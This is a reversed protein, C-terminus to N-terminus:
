QFRGDVFEFGRQVLATRLKALAARLASTAADITVKEGLCASMASALQEWKEGQRIDAYCEVFATAAARQRHPLEALLEPLTEEFRQREEASQLKAALALDTGAMDAIVLDTIDTENASKRGFKRRRADIGKNRAIRFVMRLPRDTQLDDSNVRLWVARLTEQFADALEHEDLMDWSVKGLYAMIKRAHCDWLMQMFQGPDDQLTQALITETPVEQLKLRSRVDPEGLGDHSTM